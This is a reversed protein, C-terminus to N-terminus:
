SGQKQTKGDVSMQTKKGGAKGPFGRRPRDQSLGRRALNPWDRNQSFYRGEPCPRCNRLGNVLALGFEDRPFKTNPQQALRYREACSRTSITLRGPQSPCQVVQLDMEKTELDKRPSTM